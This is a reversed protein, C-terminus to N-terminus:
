YDVRLRQTEPGHYIAISQVLEVAILLREDVLPIEIDANDLRPDPNMEEDARRKPISPQQIAAPLGQTQANLYLQIEEKPDVHVVLDPQVPVGLLVSGDSMTLRGTAMRLYRGSKLQTETYIGGEGATVEGVVLAAVQKKLLYALAEAAGRTDRNVLLVIPLTQALELPQFESRFLQQPFNMGELTFLPKGPPTFLSALAAAGEYNNGDRFFRLDIILGDVPASRWISWQEIFRQRTTTDFRLPRWYAVRDRITATLTRAASPPLLEAQESLRLKYTHKKFLRELTGAEMQAAALFPTEKINSNLLQRIEDYEAPQPMLQRDTYRTPFPPLDQLPVTDTTPPSTHNQHDQTHAQHSGWESWTYVGTAWGTIFTLSIAITILFVRAFRARKDRPAVETYRGIPREPM